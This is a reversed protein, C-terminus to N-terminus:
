GGCEGGSDASVLGFGRRYSLLSWATFRRSVHVRAMRARMARHVQSLQPAMLGFMVPVHM